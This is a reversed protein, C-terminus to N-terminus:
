FLAFMSAKRNQREPLIPFKRFNGFSSIPGQSQSLSSYSRLFAAM